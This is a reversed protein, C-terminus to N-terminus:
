NYRDPDHALLVAAKKLIDNDRVARKLQKELEQIRQHEPTLAKKDIPTSGNLEALYQQKWRSIASNSAGSIEMIQSITYNEDVILKIYERKQEPTPSIKKKRKNTM